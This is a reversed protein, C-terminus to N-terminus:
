AEAPIDSIASRHENTIVRHWVDGQEHWELGAARMVVNHQPRVSFHGVHGRGRRRGRQLSWDSPM